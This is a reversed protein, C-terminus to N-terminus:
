VLNSIQVQLAKGLRSPLMVLNSREVPKKPALPGRVVPALSVQSRPRRAPVSRDFRTPIGHFGDTGRELPARDHECRRRSNRLVAPVGDPRRSGRGPRRRKMKKSSSTSTHPPTSSRTPRHCSQKRDHNQGNQTAHRSAPHRRHGIASRTSSYYYTTENALQVRQLEHQGRTQPGVDSAWRIKRRALKM